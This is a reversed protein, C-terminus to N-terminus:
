GTRATALGILDHLETFDDIAYDPLVSDPDDRYAAAGPFGANTVLVPLMGAALAGSHERSGGDGVYWCSEVPVGLRYAATAYLRSDPKRYGEQWSFVVADFHPAYPTRSWGECLESSCDSLLGLRFGRARLAALVEFVGDRPRRVREAGERQVEVAAELQARSPEVGCRRAMALLTARTDGHVGTIRETFSAGMVHWFAEGGVGLAAATAAFAERRDAEAAPHTLTGFFDFIVAQVDGISDSPQWERPRCV